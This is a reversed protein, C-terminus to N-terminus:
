PLEVYSDEENNMGTQCFITEVQSFVFTKEYKQVMKNFAKMFAAHITIV